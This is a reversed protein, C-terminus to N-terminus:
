GIPGMSTKKGRRGSFDIWVGGGAGMGGLFDAQPVSVLRLSVWRKLDSASLDMEVFRGGVM